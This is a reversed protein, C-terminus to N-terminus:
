QGGGRGEEVIKILAGLRRDTGATQEALAEVKLSLRDVTAETREQREALKTMAARLSEDATRRSEESARLTEGLSAILRAQRVDAARLSKSIRDQTEMHQMLVRVLNAHSDEIAVHRMQSDAGQQSLHEVLRSLQEENREIRAEARAQSKLIFDIARELEDGTM